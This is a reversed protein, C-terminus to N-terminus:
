VSRRYCGLVRLQATAEEAAGLADAVNRDAPNGEIDVFFRYEWSSGVIPRSELKLLNCGYAAFIDLVRRLSGSEHAVTFLASIKDSGPRLEPAPSVVVFRTFNEDNFNIKEALVELGYLRAARPSGIAAYAPNGSEAVFKAAAATNLLATREWPRGKLFEECQFLGQEHSFVHKVGDLTAGKPAMLCHDVRVLQEGVIYAGYRALLDYVANISGTSSNEIPLVGYDARGERLAVFIDEWVPVRDRSVSEGFFLAAAEDAYAGPEGQYLVRPNDAPQRVGPLVAARKEGARAAILRRQQRRSIAMITEFLTTVDASLAPDALLARKKELVERERGADLVPLDHELKYEGVRRTVDMRAEFLRVLQQDLGDIERRLDDLQSM